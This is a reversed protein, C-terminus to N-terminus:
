WRRQGAENQDEQAPHSEGGDIDDELVADDGGLIMAILLHLGGILVLDGVQLYGIVIQIRRQNRGFVTEPRGGVGQLGLL